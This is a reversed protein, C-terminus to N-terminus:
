LPNKGNNAVRYKKSSNVKGSYRKECHFLIFGHDIRRTRKQHQTVLRRTAAESMTQFDRSYYAYLLLKKCLRTLGVGNIWFVLFPCNSKLEKSNLSEQAFQSFDTIYGKLSEFSHLGTNPGSGLPLVKPKSLPPISPQCALHRPNSVRHLWLM